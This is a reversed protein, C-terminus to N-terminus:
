CIPLAMYLVAHVRNYIYIFLTDTRLLLCCCDYVKVIVFSKNPDVDHESYKLMGAQHPILLM